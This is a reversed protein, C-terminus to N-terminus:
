VKLAHLLQNKLARNEEILNLATLVSVNLPTINNMRTAYEQMREDLEEACSRIEVESSSNSHLTYPSGFISVTIKKSNM